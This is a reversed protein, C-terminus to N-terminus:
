GTHAARLSRPLALREIAEFLGQVLLALVAAPVAGSLILGMDDLRIGTLIPQGYGGAGILAAVTATGVNIVAATKIGALIARASLPLEIQLLKEASSLGMVEASERLPRPIDTLGTYTNRVIPLLSYLFLAAVAPKAGIGLMPIMFVFLALSPLTQVISVTAIIVRGLRPSRAAVIGLPIAAVIASLLSVAVLTLHEVSRRWIRVAMGRSPLQEMSIDFTDRLYEAAVVADSRREIKVQANLAAMTAEDIRGVVRRLAALAGPARDALDQRYLWIAQYQAFFQRDDELVRLGYYAVEADTSYLDIADVGDSQLAVYSLEHTMGRVDTQRLGYGQRLGIWGDDRDMFESSFGFRLEPHAALDSIRRLDLREALEPKVGIAYTNEFGLSASMALGQEALAAQLAADDPLARGSFMEERLTGTYEPYLDIEGSLLASWLVRTGGLERRHIAPVGADQLLQQAMDGLVVSETFIKS